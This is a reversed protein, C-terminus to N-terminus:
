RAKRNFNAESVTEQKTKSFYIQSQAINFFGTKPIFM